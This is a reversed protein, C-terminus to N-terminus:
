SGPVSCMLKHSYRDMLYYANASCKAVVTYLGLFNKHMKQKYSHDEMNCKLCKDRIEFPKGKNQRNNYGKAQHKQVNKISESAKDFIGKHM